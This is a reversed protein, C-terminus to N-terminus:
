PPPRSRALRLFMRALLLNDRLYRFHSVGGEARPPYRIPVPYNLPPAGQRVLRIAAEPDFDFGRMHSSQAMVHLLPAIPYVRFGVLADGIGPALIRTCANALRRGILRLRPADPGFQPLGLILARPHAISAAMFAPISQAPHQADADMVLAHTFGEANAQILGDHVAAGKGGNRPRRLIRAGLAEIGELSADTSGDDIVWVPQWTALAAAVTAHLLPGPNYSPILVLHTTM